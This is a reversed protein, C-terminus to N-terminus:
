LKHAQDCTTPVSMALLEPSSGLPMLCKQLRFGSKWPSLPLQSLVWLPGCQPTCCNTGLRESGGAVPRLSANPSGLRLKRSVPAVFWGLPCPAVYALWLSIKLHHWARGWGLTSCKSPTWLGMPHLDGNGGGSSRRKGMICLGLICSIPAWMMGQGSSIDACWLAAKLTTSKGEPRFLFICLM